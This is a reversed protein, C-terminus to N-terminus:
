IQMLIKGPHARVQLVFRPPGSIVTIGLSLVEGSSIMGHKIPPSIGEGAALRDFEDIFQHLVAVVREILRTASEDVEAAGDVLSGM